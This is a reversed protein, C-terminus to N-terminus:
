GGAPLLGRLVLVGVGSLFMAAVIMLPIVYLSQAPSFDSQTRLAEALYGAAVLAAYVGMFVALARFLYLLVGAGATLASFPVMAVAVCNM